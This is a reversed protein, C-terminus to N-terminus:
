SNNALMRSSCIRIWDDRTEATTAAFYKKRTFRAGPFDVRIVFVPVDQISSVAETHGVQFFQADSVTNGGLYLTSRPNYGQGRLWIRGSRSLWAHRLVWDEASTPDGHLNLVFLKSKILADEMQEPASEWKSPKAEPRVAKSFKDPYDEKLQRLWQDKAIAQAAPDGSRPALGMSRLRALGKARTCDTAASELVDEERAEINAGGMQSASVTGNMVAAVGSPLNAASSTAYIRQLRYCQKKTTLCKCPVQSTIRELNSKCPAASDPRRIESEYRLQTLWKPDEYLEDLNGETDCFDQICGGQELLKLTQRQLEWLDVEMTQAEREEASAISDKRRRAWPSDVEMTSELQSETGTSPTYASSPVRTSASQSTSQLAKTPSSRSQSSNPLSHFVCDEAEDDDDDDDGDSGSSCQRGELLKAEQQQQAERRRVKQQQAEQRRRWSEYENSFHKPRTAAKQRHYKAFATRFRVLFEHQNENIGMRLNLVSADTDAQEEVNSRMNHANLGASLEDAYAAVEELDHVTVMAGNLVLLRPFWDKTGAGWSPQGEGSLANEYCSGVVAHYLHARPFFGKVRRNIDRDHRPEWVVENSAEKAPSPEGCNRRLELLHSRAAEEASTM